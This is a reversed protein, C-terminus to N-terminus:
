HWHLPSICRWCARSGSTGTGCAGFIDLLRRVRWGPITKISQYYRRLPRPGHSDYTNNSSELPAALDQLRFISTGMWSAARLGVTVKVTQKRHAACQWLAPIRANSKKTGLTVPAFCGNNVGKLQDIRASYCMDPRPSKWNCSM